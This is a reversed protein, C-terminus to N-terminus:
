VKAESAIINLTQKRDQELRAQLFKAGSGPRRFNAGINEHVFWAYEATFGLRVAPLDKSGFPETFWSSRLNGTDVPIMPSIEDMRRRLYIAARLLGKRNRGRIKNIEKNLNHVTKEIGKLQASM